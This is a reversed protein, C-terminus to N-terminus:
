SSGTPTRSRARRAQRVDRAARRLGDGGGIAKEFITPNSTVGRIGDDDVLKALGGTPSYRPHPQRVLARDSSSRAHPDREAMTLEETRSADLLARAREVVHEPTIGLERMVVDGPASAGFRDIGVVDDAYREWGFRSAPRSRSRRARRAAAGADRYDDTQAEFLDWSPM